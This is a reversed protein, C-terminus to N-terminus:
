PTERVTGSQGEVVRKRDVGCAVRGVHEDRPVGSRELGIDRLLLLAPTDDGVLSLEVVAVEGLRFIVRVREVVTTEGFPLKQLEVDALQRHVRHFGESETVLLRQAALIQPRQPERELDSSCGDSSWDSIRM